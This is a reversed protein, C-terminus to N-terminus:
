VGIVTWNAGNYNVLAYAAGGGVVTMGIVPASADSVRAIMGTGPTGPLTAVTYATAAQVNAAAFGAFASDDALRAQLFTTSRKLAPFSSTTGGFMMRGFDSGTSNSVRLLGSGTSYLSVDPAVISGILVESGRLRTSCYVDGAVYVNRPRSGGSAGIDYTNDSGYTVWHGSTNIAWQSGGGTGFVLDRTVGTGSTNIGVRAVNSSWGISLREFNSADTYTNYARFAQANAGNRLALINPDDRRLIVDIGGSIIGGPAFGISQNVELSATGNFQGFSGNALVAVSGTHNLRGPIGVQRNASEITLADSLANQATGSSGAPAVQFIISGGAANGTGQSGTITLNAGATNTTGAVVSQVSLTQAVPAAADAAGLRLNAAGRRTLLLDLAFTAMDGWAYASAAPIFSFDSRAVFSAVGATNTIKLGTADTFLQNGGGLTVLGIKSVKFKSAGGVQLDMLLSAANSPGSDTVDYKIGTYTGTGGWTQSMNLLTGNLTGRTFLNDLALKKDSPTGAPDDVIYLIDDGSPTTLATLDALKTDAM